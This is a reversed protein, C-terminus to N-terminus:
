AACSTSCNARTSAASSRRAPAPRTAPDLSDIDITIYLAEFRAMNEFIRDLARETGIRRLERAGIVHPSKDRLFEVECSEASRIGVFFVNELGAVHNLELARRETARTSRMHKM